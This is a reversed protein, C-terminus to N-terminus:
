ILKREFSHICLTIIMYTSATYIANKLNEVSTILLYNMQTCEHMIKHRTLM